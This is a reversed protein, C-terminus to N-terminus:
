LGLLYIESVNIPKDSDITIRVEKVKIEDFEAIAAPTGRYFDYNVEPDYGMYQDLDVGTEPDYIVKFRDNDFKLDDIYAINKAGTKSLYDFEIRNIKDFGNSVLKSQYVMVSRLPRYKDFTFTIKSKGKKFETEKVFDIFTFASLLDDTLFSKNSGRKLNTVTVKAEDAINGYKAAEGFNPQLSLTPVAYLVQQGKGNDVYHVKSVNPARNGDGVKRNRHAHYFIYLEGDVECFSHHGTGSVWDWHYDVTMVYGGDTSPLKTFPGLPTDGIAQIVSYKKNQMGNCSLTLYYKGNNKNYLTAPGENVNAEYLDSLNDLDKNGVTYYGPTTLLSLTDWQADDTWDGFRDTLKIGLLLSDKRRMGNFYLYKDGTVPDIFPSVDITAIDSYALTLIGKEFAEDVLDYHDIFAEDSRLERKSPDFYPNLEYKPNTASPIGYGLWESVEDSYAKVIGKQADEASLYEDKLRYKSNTYVKFPGTPSTAVAVGLCFNSRYKNNNYFDRVIADEKYLPHNEDWYYLADYKNIASFWLFYVGKGTADKGLMARYDERNAEADYVLEPAWFREYAWGNEEPVLVPPLVEWSVGDKSHWADFGVVSMYQTSTSYLFLEGDYEGGDKIQMVFPDPADIVMDNRYFLEKNYETIDYFKETEVITDSYPLAVLTGGGDCGVIAILSLVIACLSLMIKNIKRM